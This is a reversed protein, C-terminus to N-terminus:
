LKDLEKELINIETAYEMDGHKEFWEQEELDYQTKLEVAEKEFM